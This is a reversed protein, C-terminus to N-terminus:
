GPTHVERVVLVSCPAHLMVNRATSGVLLRHLGTWGRSGLVILDAEWERAIRVLEAAPDGEVVRAEATRGAHQLRASSEDATHQHEVVVQRTTQAYDDGTAPSASLALGSTWPLGVDAVSVVQVQANAFIPWQEVVSEATRAYSSGDTALIVRRLGSRRAVLVPCHAHDAVEASTSGLVMAGITGHGRSGVVILDAGFTTAEDTICSASRGELAAVEITAGTPELADAARQLLEGAAVVAEALQHDIDQAVAPAWVASVAASAPAVVTVLRLTSQAPWTLAGVLDLAVQACESGDTAILARMGGPHQGLDSM